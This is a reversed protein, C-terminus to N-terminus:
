IHRACVRIYDSDLKQRSMHLIHRECRWLDPCVRGWAVEAECQRAIAAIMIAGIMVNMVVITVNRATSSTARELHILLVINEFM